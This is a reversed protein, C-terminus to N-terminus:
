LQQASNVAEDKSQQDGGDHGVDGRPEHHICRQTQQDVTHREDDSNAFAVITTGLSGDQDRPRTAAAPSLPVADM